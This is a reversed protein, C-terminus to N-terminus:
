AKLLDKRALVQRLYFALGYQQFITAAQDLYQLATAHDDRLEATEILGKLYRGEEV